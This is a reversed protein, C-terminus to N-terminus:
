KIFSKFRETVYPGLKKTSINALQAEGCVHPASTRVEITTPTIKVGSINELLKVYTDNSTMDYCDASDRQRKGEGIHTTKIENALQPLKGEIFFDKYNLKSLTKTDFYAYDNNFDPYAGGFYFLEKEVSVTSPSLAMIKVTIDNSKDKINTNIFSRVERNVLNALPAKGDMLDYAVKGDRKARISVEYRYVGEIPTAYDNLVAIRSSYKGILCSPLDAYEKDHTMIDCESQIDKIWQSEDGKMANRGVESLHGLLNNYSMSLSEDLENLKQNNCIAIEITSKAKKCDFSAASAAGILLLTHLVVTSLLKM